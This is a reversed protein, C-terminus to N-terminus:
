EPTPRSQEPIQSFVFSKFALAIPSLRKGERYVLYWKRQIPFHEVDLVMLRGSQLHLDVTHMSVVGLGLGASVAEKLSENDAIEAQILPRLGYEQFLREMAARTGSAPERLVFPEEAVRQLSLKRRGALPHSSPAIVVLPNTMFPEVVLDMDSPPQGMIVLDKENDRLQRLLTGRNSVDLRVTAGPMQDLFAAVLRSTFSSATTAVSLLLTGRSIDKMQALMERAEGLQSFIERSYRLLEQGAQTLYIQKGLQEFLPLGVSDELKRVQLSVAPQTLHLESAAQTYSLKDAVMNFIALQRLTVHM